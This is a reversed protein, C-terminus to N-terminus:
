KVRTLVSVRGDQEFLSFEAVPGSKAGNVRKEHTILNAETAPTPVLHRWAMKKSEGRGELWWMGRMPVNPLGTVGSRVAVAAYTGDAHLQVITEIDPARISRWEGVYDAPLPAKGCAALLLAILTLTLRTLRTLPTLPTLRSIRMM